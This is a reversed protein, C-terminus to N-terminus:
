SRHQSTEDTVAVNMDRLLVNTRVRAGAERCMRAVARELPVSRLKPRGSGMCAGFHHVHDLTNDFHLQVLTGRRFGDCKIQYLDLESLASKLEAGTSTPSYEFSGQIGSETEAFAGRVTFTVAKGRIEQRVTVSYTGNLSTPFTRPM